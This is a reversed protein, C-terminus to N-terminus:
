NSVKKIYTNIEEIFLKLQYLYVKDKNASIENINILKDELEELKEKDGFLFFKINSIRNYIEGFCNRVEQLQQATCQGVMKILKDINESLFINVDKESLTINLNDKIDSM